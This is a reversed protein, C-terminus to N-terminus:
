RKLSPNGPESSAHSAESSSKQPEESLTLDGWIARGVACLSSLYGGYTTPVWAGHAICADANPQRNNGIWTPVKCTPCMYVHSSIEVKEETTQKM